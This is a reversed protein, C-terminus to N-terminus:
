GLVSKRRGSPETADPRRLYLPELPAPVAGGRLREAAVTVLGSVLGWVLPVDTAPGIEGRPPDLDILGAVLHVGAGLLWRPAVGASASWSSVAAPAMAAPGGIRRGSRYASVYVERRRADTVVLLDGQAGALDGRTGSLGGSPDDPVARNTSTEGNARAAAAAVADHSPVGYCPIGLGDALAAATAIGVRLGTFPGPGLGVVVAGADRLERGAVAAAETLLPLLREAHAFPDTLSREALVTITWRGSDGAGSDGAGSDGAGSHTAPGPGDAVAFEVLGATLTPTSTDLALVLM